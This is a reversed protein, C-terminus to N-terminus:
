HRDSKRFSIIKFLAPLPLHPLRGEEVVQFGSHALFGRIEKADHFHPSSCPGTEMSTTGKLILRGLKYFHSETPLSVILLGNDKTIREIEKVPEDLKEFHELTDLCFVIDFFNDPFGTQRLDGIKIEARLIKKTGEVEPLIDVGFTKVFPFKEELLKLFIGDGCGLDIARPADRLGLQTKALRLAIKLRKLFLNKVLPNKSYYEPVIKVAM